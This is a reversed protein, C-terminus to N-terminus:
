RIPNIKTKANKLKNDITALYNGVLAILRCENNCYWLNKQFNEKM